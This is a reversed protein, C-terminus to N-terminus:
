ADSRLLLLLTYDVDAVAHAKGSEDFGGLGGIVLAQTWPAVEGGALTAPVTVELDEAASWQDPLAEVVPGPLSWLPKGDGDGVGVWRGREEIVWNVHKVWDAFKM